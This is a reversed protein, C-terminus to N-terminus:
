ITNNLYITIIRTMVFLIFIFDKMYCNYNILEIYYMQDKSGSAPFCVTVVDYKGDDEIM